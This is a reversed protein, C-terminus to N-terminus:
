GSDDAFTYQGAEIRAVFARLWTLEGNTTHLWFDFMERIHAPKGMADSNELLHENIARAGEVKRIRTNLLYRVNERPLATVFCLAANLALADGDALSKDLLLFFEGEGAETVRYLTRDPGRGGSEPELSELLGEAALKKLAHYISGPRINAWREVGWTLLARRAQYGHTQGIARVVGLVLLRTASV